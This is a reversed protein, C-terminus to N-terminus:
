GKVVMVRVVGGEGHRGVLGAAALASGHEDDAVLARVAMVGLAGVAELDDM